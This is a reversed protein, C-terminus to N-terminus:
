KVRRFEIVWVFPNKEWAYQGKGYISNWFALFASQRNAVSEGEIGPLSIGEAYIDEFSIEQVREVRVNVIELTIRSAWRPMHISPRWKDGADKSFYVSDDAKYIVKDSENGDRDAFPIQTWTERVWLRDGPNGFPCKIEEHSNDDVDTQVDLYFHNKKCYNTEDETAQYFESLPWSMIDKGNNDWSPINKVPRRTMTKRGDLIAKVMESNLILPREKM